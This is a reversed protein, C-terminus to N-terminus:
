ARRQVCVRLPPEIVLTDDPLPDEHETIMKLTPEDDRRRHREILRPAESNTANASDVSSIHGM